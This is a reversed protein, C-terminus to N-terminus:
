HRTDFRTLEEATVANQSTYHGRAAQQRRITGIDSRKNELFGETMQRVHKEIEVVAATKGEVQKLLARIRDSQANSISDFESKNARLHDIITDVENGAADLSKMFEDMEALYGDFDEFEGKSPDVNRKLYDDCRYIEELLDIEKKLIEELKDAYSM